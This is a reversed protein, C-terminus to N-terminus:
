EFVFELRIFTQDKQKGLKIDVKDLKNKNIRLSYHQACFKKQEWVEPSVDDEQGIKKDWSTNIGGDASWVLNSGLKEVKIWLNM